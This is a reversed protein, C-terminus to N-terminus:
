IVKKKILNKELGKMADLPNGSKIQGMLSTYEQKNLIRKNQEMKKYAFDVENM